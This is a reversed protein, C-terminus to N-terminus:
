VPVVEGEELAQYFWDCAWRDAHTRRCGHKCTTYKVRKDESPKYMPCQECHYEEDHIEYEEALTEAVKQSESFMVFACFGLGMNFHVDAKAGKLAIENLAENLKKQFEEASAAQIIRSQQRGIFQM